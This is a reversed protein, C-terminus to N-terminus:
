SHYLNHRRIYDFVGPHLQHSMNRGAHMGARIRTASIDLPSIAMCHIKGTSEASHGSDDAGHWWSPLPDPRSWGPRIMVIVSVMELLAERRHWKDLGLAADLGLIISFRSGPFESRLERVTDVTYSRGPRELERPDAVMAPEDALAIRVMDLRQSASAVPQERHPPTSAPVVHVTDLGAPALIQRLAGTHGLHIPDFTGGFL